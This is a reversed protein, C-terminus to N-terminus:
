ILKNLSESVNQTAGHLFKSLLTESDFDKYSFVPAILKCVAPDINIKQRYTEEGTIKDM